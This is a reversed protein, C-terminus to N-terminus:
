EVTRIWNFKDEMEGMKIKNLADGIRNALEFNDPNPLTYDTGEHNIEKVKSVTAATGIGFAEQLTGNKAAEIVEKVSIQREEVEIGWDRALTLASDRTIGALISDSLAPTIIKGDIVFIINMTGSEEIYEHVSGDTWILQDFGQKKAELAPLLSAAYNGATKASGVGGKPARTFHQEVKVRVPEAYYKGVPTTIIMFKYENAPRVGVLEESGFMFPRIYLSTEPDTPIWDQDLKVLQDIAEVFLEEPVPQMSMRLASKTFRAANADPRFITIKGDKNKYAKLGEFISQGYHIAANAPNIEFNQYPLIQPNVWEKGDFDVMFMHDSFTGGFSLNSFDITSLKSNTTKTISINAM